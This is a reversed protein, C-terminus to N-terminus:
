VQADALFACRGLGQSFREYVRRVAASEHERCSAGCV